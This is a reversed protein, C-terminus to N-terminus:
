KLQEKLVEMIIIELKGTIVFCRGKGIKFKDINMVVDRVSWSAYDM